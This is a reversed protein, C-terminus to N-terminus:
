GWSRYPAARAASRRSVAYLPATCSASSAAPTGTPAATISTPWLWPPITAIFRAPSPRNLPVRQRTVWTSAAPDGILVFGTAGPAAVRTSDSSFRLTPRDVDLHTVIDSRNELSM